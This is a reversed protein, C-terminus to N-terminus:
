AGVINDAEVNLQNNYMMQIVINFDSITGTGKSPKVISVYLKDAKERTLMLGFTYVDNAKMDIEKKVAKGDKLPNSTVGLAFIFKGEYANNNIM